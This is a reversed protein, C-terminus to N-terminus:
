PPLKRPRGALSPFRHTLLQNQLRQTLNRAPEAGYRCPGTPSPTQPGRGSVHVLAFTELFAARRRWRTGRFTCRLGRLSSPLDGERGLLATAAGVCGVGPAQSLWAMSSAASLAPLHSLAIPSFDRIDSLYPELVMARMSEVWGRSDSTAARRERTSPETTRGPSSLQSAARWAQFRATSWRGATTARGAEAESTCASTSKARVCPSRMAICPVPWLAEGIPGSSSVISTLVESIRPTSISSACQTARTSAPASHISTM